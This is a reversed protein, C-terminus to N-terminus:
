KKGYTLQLNHTGTLKFNSLGKLAATAAPEDGFEIFAVGKGGAM